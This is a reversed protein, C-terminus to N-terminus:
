SRARRRWLAVVLAGVGTALSAAALGRAVPDDTGTQETAAPTEAPNESAAGGHSAGHESAVGDEPASVLVVPAPHEPEEAGAEAVENWATSGTVCTQEVPFAVTAGTSAEAFTVDLAVSARLGSEIPEDATFTVRTPVGDAGVDRTITWEGDVVPTATAVEEPIDVALTTTPSDECGHSFSFHLTTRTGAPAVEPSVGIHASAALPAALVLALGLLSGTAVLPTRRSASATM